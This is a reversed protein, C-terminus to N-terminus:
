DADHKGFPTWRFLHSIDDLFWDVLVTAGVHNRGTFGGTNVPIDAAVSVEAYKGMWLVGPRLTSVTGGPPGSVAAGANFEVFPFLDGFFAGRSFGQRLGDELEYGADAKRVIHNLYPLSYFLVEDYVLQRDRPGSVSAEFGIDGQVGFPRLWSVPLDGFGKGYALMPRLATQRDTISTSGTPFAVFLMPSVVLEHKENTFAEWKLGLELNEWAALSRVGSHVYSRDQDLVVSFRHPYLAKEFSLGVSRWTGDPQVLFQLNPLDLENKVNADESVLPEVFMRDGVTGHAWGCVGGLVIALLLLFSNRAFRGGRTVLKMM